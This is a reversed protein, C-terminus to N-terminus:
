LTGYFSTTSPSVGALNTLKGEQQGLCAPRKANSDFSAIKVSKLWEVYLFNVSYVHATSTVLVLYLIGAIIMSFVSLHITM